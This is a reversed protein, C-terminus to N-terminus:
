FFSNVKSYIKEEYLIDLLYFKYGFQIFPSNHHYGNGASWERVLGPINKEERELSGRCHM